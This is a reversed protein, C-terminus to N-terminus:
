ALAAAAGTPRGSRRWELVLVGCGILLMVLQTIGSLWPLSILVSVALAGLAM